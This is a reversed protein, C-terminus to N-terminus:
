LLEPLEPLPLRELLNQRRTSLSCFSRRVFNQFIYMILVVIFFFVFLCCEVLPSSNLAMVIRKHQENFFDERVFFHYIWYSISYINELDSTDCFLHVSAFYILSCRQTFTLKTILQRLIQTKKKIYIYKVNKQPNHSSMNEETWIPITTAKM